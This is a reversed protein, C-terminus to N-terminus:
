GSQNVKIFGPMCAEPLKYKQKMFFPNLIPSYDFAFNANNVDTVWLDFVGEL